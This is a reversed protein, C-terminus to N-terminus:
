SLAGTEVAPEDMVKVRPFEIAIEDRIGSFVRVATFTFGTFCLSITVQMRSRLLENVRPM